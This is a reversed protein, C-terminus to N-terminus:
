EISTSHKKSKQSKLVSNNKKRERLFASFAADDAKAVSSNIMVDAQNLKQFNPSNKM